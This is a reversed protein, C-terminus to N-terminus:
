KVKYTYTSKADKLADKYTYAYKGSPGKRGRNARWYIGVHNLWPNSTEANMCKIVCKARASM